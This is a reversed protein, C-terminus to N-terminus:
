LSFPRSHYWLREPIIMESLSLAGSPIMIFQYPKVGHVPRGKVIFYFRRPLLFLSNGTFRASVGLPALGM